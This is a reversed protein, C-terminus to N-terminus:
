CDLRWWVLGEPEFIDDAPVERANRKACDEFDKGVEVWPLKAGDRVMCCGIASAAASAGPLLPGVFGFPSFALAAILVTRRVM